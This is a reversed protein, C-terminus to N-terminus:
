TRKPLFLVIAAALNSPPMTQLWVRGPGRLTALFLAEGGLLVNAFGKVMAIDFEVTPDFTAVHGPDVKLRQGPGLTYEQAEGGSEVFALGPGTLKQLIFGEGGFLGAGLKRRFHMAITVANEAVM